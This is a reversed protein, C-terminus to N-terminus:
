LRWCHQKHGQLKESTSRWDYEKHNSKLSPRCCDRNMPLLDLPLELGPEALREGFMQIFGVTMPNPPVETSSVAAKRLMVEITLTAAADRGTTTTDAIPPNV